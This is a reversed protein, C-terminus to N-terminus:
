VKALSRIVENGRNVWTPLYIPLYSESFHGGRRILSYILCQPSRIRPDHVYATLLTINKVERM